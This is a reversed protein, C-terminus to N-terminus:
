DQVLEDGLTRAHDRGWLTALVTFGLCCVSIPLALVLFPWLPTWPAEALWRAFLAVGVVVFAAVTVSAAALAAVAIRAHRSLSCALGLGAFAVATLWLGIALAQLVAIDAPKADWRAPPLTNEPIGYLPLVLAAIAALALLSARRAVSVATVAALRRAVLEPAGFSEVAAHEATDADLGRLVNARAADRLHEEAEALFRRRQTRPLRRALEALYAEITM